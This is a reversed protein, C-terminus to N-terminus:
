TRSPLPSSPTSQALRNGPAHREVDDTCRARRLIPAGRRDIQPPQRFGDTNPKTSRGKQHAFLDRM